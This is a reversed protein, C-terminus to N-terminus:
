AGRIPAADLLEILKDAQQKRAAYAAAARAAYAADAAYAAAAYAAAADAARAADAAYAAADAADAARAAYAAADAAYAARAAADAADAARAAADAAYAARAAARAADAADTTVPAGQAKDALVQLAPPCATRTANDAYRDLADGVCWHLFQWPVLTLDAGVRPAAIVRQPFGKAAANDLGEFISEAIRTLMLPFGTLAEVKATDDSHALCGIFCGKGNEWYRGQVIEDAATHADVQARVMEALAPDNHFAISM